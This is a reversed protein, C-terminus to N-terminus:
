EDLLFCSDPDWAAFIQQGIEFDPKSGENQDFAMIREGEEPQLLYTTSTGMYVLHVVQARLCNPLAPDEEFIRIKEPRVVLSMEAGADLPRECGAALVFGPGVQLRALGDQCGLVKGEFFNSSGLFNSIFRTRPREYVESPAGIQIIRGAKMVAIRDALTM